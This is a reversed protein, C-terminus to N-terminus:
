YKMNTLDSQTKSGIWFATLQVTKYSALVTSLVDPISFLDVVQSHPLLKPWHMDIQGRIRNTSSTKFARSRFLENKTHLYIKLIHLDIKYVTDWFFSHLITKALVEDFFSFNHSTCENEVTGLECWWMIKAEIGDRQWFNDFNTSIQRLESLFLKACNKQSVTYILTM